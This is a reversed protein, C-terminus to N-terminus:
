SSKTKELVILLFLHLALKLNHTTYMSSRFVEAGQGPLLIYKVLSQSAYIDRKGLKYYFHM